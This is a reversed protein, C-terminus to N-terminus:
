WVMGNPYRKALCDLHCRPKGPCTWDAPGEWGPYTELGEPWEPYSALAMEMAELRPDLFARVERDSWVYPRQGEITNGNPSQWTQKKECVMTKPWKPALYVISLVRFEIRRPDASLEEDPRDAPPTWKTAHNVVWRNLNVQETHHRRPYQFSPPTETKKYDSLTGTAPDIFDPSCSFELGDISTFFRWECIAGPRRAVEMLRHAITGMMSAYNADLSDIYPEKRELVTSRLCGGTLASTSLYTREQHLKLVSDILEYSWSSWKPGESMAMGLVEEVPMWQPLRGPKDKQRETHSPDIFGILPM